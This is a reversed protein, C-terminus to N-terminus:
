GKLRDRRMKIQYNSPTKRIIEQLLSIFYIEGQQLELFLQMSYLMLSTLIARLGCLDTVLNDSCSTALGLLVM